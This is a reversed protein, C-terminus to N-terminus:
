TNNPYNKADYRDSKQCLYWAAAQPVFAGFGKPTLIQMSLFSPISSLINEFTQIDITEIM